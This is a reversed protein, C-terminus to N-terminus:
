IRDLGIRDLGVLGTWDLGAMGTSEKLLQVAEKTGLCKKHLQNISQSFSQNISQNISQKFPQNAVKMDISLHHRAASRGHQCM